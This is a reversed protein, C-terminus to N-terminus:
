CSSGCRDSHVSAHPALPPQTAHRRRRRRSPQRCGHMWHPMRALRETKHAGQLGGREQPGANRGKRGQEAGTMWLHDHPQPIVGDWCLACGCLVIAAGVRVEIGSEHVTGSAHMYNLFTLLGFENHTRTFWLRAEERPDHEWCLLAGQKQVLQQVEDEDKDEEEDEDESDDDDAAAAAAARRARKSRQTPKPAEPKVGTNQM